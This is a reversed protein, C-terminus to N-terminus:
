RQHAAASTHISVVEKGQGHTRRWIHSLHSFCHGHKETSTGNSNSTYDQYHVVTKCMVPYKEDKAGGVELLRTVFMRWALHCQLVSEQMELHGRSTM